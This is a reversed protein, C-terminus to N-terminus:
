VTYGVNKGNTMNQCIVVIPLLQGSDDIMLSMGKFKQKHFMAGKPVKAPAAVSVFQCLKNPFNLFTPVQPQVWKCWANPHMSTPIKAESAAKSM